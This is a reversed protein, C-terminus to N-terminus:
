GRYIMLDDPSLEYSHPSGIVGPSNVLITADDPQNEEEPEQSTESLDSSQQRNDDDEDDDVWVGDDDGDDGERDDSDDRRVRVIPQFQEGSPRNRLLDGTPLRQRGVQINTEPNLQQSAGIPPQYVNSNNPRQMIPESSPVRKSAGQESNDVFPESIVRSSTTFSKYPDVESHYSSYTDVDNDAADKNTNLSSGSGSGSGSYLRSDAQRQYHPSQRVQQNLNALLQQRDEWRDSNHDSQQHNDASASAARQSPKQIPHTSMNIVDKQM